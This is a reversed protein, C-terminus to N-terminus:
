TPHSFGDSITVSDRHLQKEKEFEVMDTFGALVACDLRIYDDGGQFV